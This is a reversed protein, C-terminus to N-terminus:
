EVLSVDELEQEWAVLSCLELGLVAEGEVPLVVLTIPQVTVPGRWRDVVGLVRSGRIM